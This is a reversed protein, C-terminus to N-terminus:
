IRVRTLILELDWMFYDRGLPSGENVRRQIGCELLGAV